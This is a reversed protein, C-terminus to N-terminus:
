ARRPATAGRQQRVLWALVIGPVIAGAGGLIAGAVVLEVFAGAPHAVLWVFGM